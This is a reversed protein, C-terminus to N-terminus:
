VERNTPLTLHTYSVAEIRPTDDPPGQGVMHALLQHEERHLPSQRRTLRSGPEDKVAVAAALVRAFRKPAKKAVIFDRLAHATGAVAVVVRGGFGEECRDFLLAKVTPVEGCLRLSVILDVCEDIAEVIRPSAMGRNPVEARDVEFVLGM